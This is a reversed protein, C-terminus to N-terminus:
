QEIAIYDQASKPLPAFDITYGARNRLEITESGIINVHLGRPLKTATIYAALAQRREKTTEQRLSTKGILARLADPSLTAMDSLAEHFHPHNM